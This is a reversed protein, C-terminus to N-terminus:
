KSKLSTNDVPLEWDELSGPVSEPTASLSSNHIISWTRGSMASPPGFNRHWSSFDSLLYIIIKDGQYITVM